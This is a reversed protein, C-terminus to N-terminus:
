AVWPLVAALRPLAAEAAAEGLAIYRRDASFRRLGFGGAAFDPEVVITARSAAESAIKGQMLHFTTSLVDVVGRDADARTSTVAPRTLKVAIVVDAGFGAVVNTPIPNLVGGDVLLHSGIRQPPYVGPIACSALVAQWIPGETLVLERETVLDVATVGLQVPLEEIRKEGFHARLGARMGRNSLLARRSTPPRVLRATAEALAVEVEDPSLGEAHLAAVGAGVSTGAIYDVPVSARALLRLVGVHAWGRIAGGGLALGVELGLLKRAARGLERADVEAASVVRECGPPPAADDPVDVIVHAVRPALDRVARERAGPDAETVVEVRRRSHRAMAAALEDLLERRAGRVGIVRDTRREMRRRDSLALREALISGLNQLLRPSSEALQAFVDASIIRVEMRDRARVTASVPLGTLLSVEGLVDGPGADGIVEDGVLVDARGADLLYLGSPSDGEALVTAGAPFMKSAALGLVRDVEGRELGAFLTTGGLVRSSSVRALPSRTAAAVSWGNGDPDSFSFATVLGSEPGVILEEAARPRVPIVVWRVFSASVILPVCSCVVSCVVVSLRLRQSASMTSQM